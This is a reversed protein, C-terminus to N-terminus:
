VSEDFPSALDISAVPPREPPDVPDSEQGFCRIAAGRAPQSAEQEVLLAEPDSGLLDTPVEFGVVDFGARDPFRHM